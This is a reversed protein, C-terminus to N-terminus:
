RMGREMGLTFRIQALWGDTMPTVGDMIVTLTGNYRTGDSLDHHEFIARDVDGLLEWARTVAEEQGGDGLRHVEVIGRIAFDERRMRHARTAPTLTYPGVGLLYVRERQTPLEPLVGWRVVTDDGAVTDQLLEVLEAIAGPPRLPRVTTM